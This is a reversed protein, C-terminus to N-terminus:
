QSRLYRTAIVKEDGARAGVSGPKLHQRTLRSLSSSQKAAATVDQRAVCRRAMEHERVAVREPGHRDVLSELGNAIGSRDQMADIM